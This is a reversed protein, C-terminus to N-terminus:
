RLKSAKIFSVERGNPSCAFVRYGAGLLADVATQCASLRIPDGRRYHFEVLLQGIDLSCAVVDAIVAVEAGEIDLKLIDIRSHGLESMLTRVRKVPLEASDFAGETSSSIEYSVWHPNSRLVFSESGDCDAVGVPLFHFREPLTQQAVWKVSVPTPDFGYVTSGYREILACDFTIDTGVGASYVVSGRGLGGSSVWWGGYDSGLRERDVRVRSGLKLEWGGAGRILRALLRSADRAGRVARVDIM